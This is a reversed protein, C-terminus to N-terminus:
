ADSEGALPSLRGRTHWHDAETHCVYLSESLLRRDGARVVFVVTLSRTGFAKEVANRDLHCFGRIKRQFQEREIRGSLDLEFVLDHSIDPSGDASTRHIEVWGDPAIGVTEKDTAATLSVGFLRSIPEKGCQCQAELLAQQVDPPLPHRLHEKVSLPLIAYKV